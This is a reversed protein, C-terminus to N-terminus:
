NNSEFFEQIPTPLSIAYGQVYDLGLERLQMVLIQDEAFEAITQLNMIHAIQNIAKIISRHIPNSACDRVIKGDIKIFDIPLNTLYGFSSLGSGFDDLAFKCGM